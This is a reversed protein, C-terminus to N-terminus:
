LAEEQLLCKHYGEVIDKPHDAPSMAVANVSSYLIM